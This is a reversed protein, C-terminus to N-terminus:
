LYSNMFSSVNKQYTIHENIQEELLDSANMKYDAKPNIRKNGLATDKETHNCILDYIEQNQTLISATESANLKFYKEKRPTTTISVYQGTFFSRFDDGTTTQKEELYTNNQKDNVIENIFDFMTNISSHSYSLDLALSLSEELCGIPSSQRKSTLEIIQRPTSDKIKSKICNVPNKDIELGNTIQPNKAFSCSDLTIFVKKNDIKKFITLAFHTGIKTADSKNGLENFYIDKLTIIFGKNQNILNLGKNETNDGDIFGVFYGKKQIKRAFGPYLIKLFYEKRSNIDNKEFLDSLNTKQEETFLNLLSEEEIDDFFLYNAWSPIREM